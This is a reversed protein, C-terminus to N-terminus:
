FPRSALTPLVPPEMTTLSSTQKGLRDNNWCDRRAGACEKGRVAAVVKGTALPQFIEARLSNHLSEAKPSREIRVGWRKPSADPTLSTCSRESPIGHRDKRFKDHNKVFERRKMPMPPSRVHRLENASHFYKLNYTLAVLEQANPMLFFIVM